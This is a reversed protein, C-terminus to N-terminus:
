DQNKVNYFYRDAGELPHKEIYENIARTGLENIKMDAIQAYLKWSKINEQTARFGFVQTTAANKKTEPVSEQANENDVRQQDNENNSSGSMMLSTLNSRLNSTDFNSM